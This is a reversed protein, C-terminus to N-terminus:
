CFIQYSQNSKKSLFDPPVWKTSKKGYQFITLQM